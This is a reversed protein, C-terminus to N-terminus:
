ICQRRTDARSFVVCGIATRGSLEHQSARAVFHVRNSASVFLERVSSLQASGLLGSARGVFLWSLSSCCRIVCLGFQNPEFSSGGAHQSAPEHHFPVRFPLSARWSILGISRSGSQTPQSAPQIVQVRAREHLFGLYFSRKNKRRRRRM